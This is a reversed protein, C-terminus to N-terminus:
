MRYGYLVLECRKIKKDCLPCEIYLNDPDKGRVQEKIRKKIVDAEEETIKLNHATFNRNMPKALQYKEINLSNKCSKEYGSTFKTPKNPDPTKTFM